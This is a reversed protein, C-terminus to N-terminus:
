ARAGVARGTGRRRHHAHRLLPRRCDCAAVLVEVEIGLWLTGDEARTTAMTAGGRFGFPLPWDAGLWQRNITWTMEIGPLPVTAALDTASVAPAEVEPADGTLPLAVSPM